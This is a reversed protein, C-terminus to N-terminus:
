GPEGPEPLPQQQQVLADLRLDLEHHRGSRRGGRGQDHDNQRALPPGHDAGDRPRHNERRRAAPHLRLAEDNKHIRVPLSLHEQGDAALGGARRTGGGRRFRRALHVAPRVRRLDLRPQAHRRQRLLGDHRRALPPDRGDRSDRDDRFPEPHTGQDQFGAPRERRGQRPAGQRRHPISDRQLKAVIRDNPNQKGNTFAIERYEGNKYVIRKPVNLEQPLGKSFTREDYAKIEGLAHEWDVQNAAVDKSRFVRNYRGGKSGDASDQTANMNATGNGAVDWSKGEMGVAFYGKDHMLPKEAKDRPNFFPVGSLVTFKGQGYKLKFGLKERLQQLVKGPNGNKYDGSEFDANHLENSAFKGTMSQNFDTLVTTKIGAKVLKEVAAYVKQDGIEFYKIVFHKEETKIGKFAIYADVDAALWDAPDVAPVGPYPHSIGMEVADDLKALASPIEVAPPLPTAKEWTKGQAQTDSVDTAPATPTPPAKGTGQDGHTKTRGPALQAAPVAAASGSQTPAVAPVATAPVAAQADFTHGLTKAAAAIDGDKIQERLATAMEKTIPVLEAKGGGQPMVLAQAGPRITQPIMLVGRGADLVVVPGLTILQQAMSQNQSILSFVSPPLNLPLGAQPTVVVAATPLAKLNIARFEVGFAASSSISLALALRIIRSIRGELFKEM